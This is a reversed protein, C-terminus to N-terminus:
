GIEIATGDIAIVKQSTATGDKNYIIDGIVPTESITYIIESNLNWAYLLTTKNTNTSIQQGDVSMTVVADSPTPNITFMATTPKEELTVDIFKDSDVVVNGKFTSYGEKSVIYSMHASTPVIVTKSM